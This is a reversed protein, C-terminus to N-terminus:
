YVEPVLKVKVKEIEVDPLKEKKISETTLDYIERGRGQANEILVSWNDLIKEESLTVKKPM